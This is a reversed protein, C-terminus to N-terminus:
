NNMLWEFPVLDFSRNRVKKRNMKDIEDSLLLRVRQAAFVNDHIKDRGLEMINLCEPMLQM